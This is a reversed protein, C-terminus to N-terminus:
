LWGKEQWYQYEAKWDEKRLQMVRKFRERAQEITQMQETFMRKEKVDQALKKGLQHAQETKEGLTYACASIGGSYQAGCAHGYYRIYNLVDTDRGSGSSIVAVIYKGLLRKCHIFHSSRDFLTKMLGTVQNIYNPSALILSDAGLVKELIVAVDDKIPCHMIEKHCNECHRCFEIRYDYLHLTENDFGEAICGKLVEEALILTRSKERHPSSSILLVKM